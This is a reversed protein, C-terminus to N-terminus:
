FQISFRRKLHQQLVIFDHHSGTNLWSLKINFPNVLFVYDIILGQNTFLCGYAFFDRNNTGTTDTNIHCSHQCLRSRVAQIVPQMLPANILIHFVRTSKIRVRIRETIFRNPHHLTFRTTDTFARTLSCTPNM